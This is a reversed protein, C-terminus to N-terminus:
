IVRRGVALGRVVRGVVRRGLATAPLGRARRREAAVAPVAAPDPRFLTSRYTQLKPLRRGLVLPTEM